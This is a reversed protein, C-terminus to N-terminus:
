FNNGWIELSAFTIQGKYITVKPIILQKLDLIEGYADTIRFKEIDQLKFLCLDACAGSQMINDINVGLAKLPSITVAKLVDKIDMGLGLYKSMTYPLGFSTSTFARPKIIDTSIIDPAFGSELSARLVKFSFNKFGDASDFILGKERADKICPLIKGQKDIISEGQENFTHCLVDGSGLVSCIDNLPKPHNSFHVCLPLKLSSALHKAKLLPELDSDKVCCNDYRLKLGRINTYRQCLDFIREKEIAYVNEPAKENIQGSSGVNLYTYIDCTSKCVTNEYFDKFNSCGTSGADALATCGLPLAYNDAKLGNDSGQYIHCHHDIFGPALIYGDANIVIQAEVNLNIGRQLIQNKQIVLDEAQLSNQLPDYILANKILLSPTTM